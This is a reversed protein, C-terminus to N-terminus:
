SRRKQADVFARLVAGIRTQYGPGFQRFWTVVDADLRLAVQTKPEPRALGMRLWDVPPTAQRKPRKAMERTLGARMETETVAPRQETADAGPPLETSDAATEGMNKEGSASGDRDTAVSTATNAM